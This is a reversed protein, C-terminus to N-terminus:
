KAPKTSGSDAMPMLLVAAQASDVESLRLEYREGAQLLFGL